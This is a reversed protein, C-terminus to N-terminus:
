TENEDLKLCNAGNNYKRKAASLALSDFFSSDDADDDDDDSEDVEVEDESDFSESPVFFFFFFVFVLFCSFDSLYTAGHVSYNLSFPVTM